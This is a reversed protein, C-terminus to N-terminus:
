ATEDDDRTYNCYMWQFVTYSDMYPDNGATEDTFPTAAGEGYDDLAPCADTGNVSAKWIKRKWVKGTRGQIYANATIRELTSLSASSGEANDALRELAAAMRAGDGHNIVRDRYDM